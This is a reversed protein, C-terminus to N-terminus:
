MVWPKGSRVETRLDREAKLWDEVDHGHECGRALYLAYARRAIDRDTLSPRAATPVNAPRNATTTVAGATVTRASKAAVSGARDSAAASPSLRRSDELPPVALPQKTPRADHPAPQAPPRVSPPRKKSM